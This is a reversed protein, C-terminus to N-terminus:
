TISKSKRHNNNKLIFIIFFLANNTDIFVDPNRLLSISHTLLRAFFNLM